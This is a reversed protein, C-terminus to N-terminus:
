MSSIADTGTGDSWRWNSSGQKHLGVWWIDGRRAVERLLWDQFVFCVATSLPIIIDNSCLCKYSCGITFCTVVTLVVVIRFSTVVAFGSVCSPVHSLIIDILWMQFMDKCRIILCTSSALGSVHKLLWDQFM